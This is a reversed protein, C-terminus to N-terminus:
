ASVEKMKPNSVNLVSKGVLHIIIMTVIMVSGISIPIFPKIFFTGTSCIILVILTSLPLSFALVNLAFKLDFTQKEKTKELTQVAGMHAVPWFSCSSQPFVVILLLTSFSLTSPMFFLLIGSLLFAIGSKWILMQFIVWVDAKKVSVALGIFILVLPTMMGGLRSIVDQAFHPLNNFNLGFVLMILAVGIVFNIPESVMARILNWIKSTSPDGESNEVKHVKYFWHMALLYLFFLVFFKNGVDAFAAYALNDEGLFEAIFPFSSLGPALSAALLLITRKRAGDSIGLLNVLFFTSGFLIVNILLAILPLILLKFNIEIKLLAIFITAPLAISLIITKIGAKQEAGSIKGKLVVGIGILLLFGVAKAVGVGM